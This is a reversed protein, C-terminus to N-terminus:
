SQTAGHSAYSVWDHLDLSTKNAKLLLERSLQFAESDNLAFFTAWDLPPKWALAIHGIYTVYVEWLSM